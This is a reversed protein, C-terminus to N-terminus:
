AALPRYSHVPVCPPRRHGSERHIPEEPRRNPAPEACCVRLETGCTWRSLSTTGATTRQASVARCAPPGSDRPCTDCARRCTDSEAVAWRRPSPLAPRPRRVPDDPHRRLHAEPFYVSVQAPGTGRMVTRPNRASPSRRLKRQFNGGRAATHTARQASCTARHIGCTANRMNCRSHHMENGM